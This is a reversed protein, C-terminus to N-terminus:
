TVRDLYREIVQACEVRADAVARRTSRTPADLDPQARSRWATAMSRLQTAVEPDIAPASQAARMIRAGETGRLFERVKGM